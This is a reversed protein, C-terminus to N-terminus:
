KRATRKAAIFAAASRPDPNKIFAKYAATTEGDDAPRDSLTGPRMVPPADRVKKDTIAASSVHHRVLDWLMKQFPEARLLPTTAFAQALDDKSIGYKEAMVPILNEKVSRVTEPSQTAIFSDMKQDESKAWHTLQEQFIRAQVSKAQESMRHITQARQLKATLQQHREPNNISMAQVVAAIQDGNLGVLEQFDGLISAVSAQAAAHTAQAYAERAQNAKGLEQEVAARLKPSRTLADAIEPDVGPPLVQEPSIQPQVEPQPQQQQAQQQEPQQREARLNDVSEALAEAGEHEAVTQEFERQRQIDRTARALDISQDPPIDKGADPGGIQVYKREVPEQEAARSEQLADAAREIGRVDSTFTTQEEKPPEYADAMKTFTLPEQNEAM